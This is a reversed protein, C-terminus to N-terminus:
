AKIEMGYIARLGYKLASQAVTREKEDPSYLAEEINRYFEGALSKDEKLKKINLLPQSMDKIELYSVAPVLMRLMEADSSFEESTIGTLEVRLLTDDGYPACMKAIDQAVSDFSVAGTVDFKLTEYRKSSIRVHKLSVSNKEVNGMIVGKYGTEGFDRGEVCGCYAYKTNGASMIETGKHIHGLAVYDFGSEELVEKSVPCYSSQPVDVDGHHVLINIKGDENAKFVTDTFPVKSKGTYASGYIRANLSEIEVFNMCESSFIYVNEPWKVLKYPSHDTYPDHNGPTIVFHCDPVSAMDKVLGTVTDKTICEDDFLDGAIIFLQVKETRALIVLSSFAARLAGRRKEATTPDASSFPSDLHLDGTHIIKM